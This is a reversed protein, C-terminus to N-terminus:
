LNVYLTCLAIRTAISNYFYEHYNTLVSFIQPFMLGTPKQEWLMKRERIHVRTKKVPYFCQVHKVSNKTVLIKNTFSLKIIQRERASAFYDLVKVPYARQYNTLLSKQTRGTHSHFSAVFDLFIM